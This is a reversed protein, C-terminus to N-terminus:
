EVPFRVWCGDPHRRGPLARRAATLTPTPASIHNAAAALLTYALRATAAAQDYDWREFASKAGRAALDAAAVLLRVRHADASALIDGAVANALNLYGATEWRHMNDKDFRGFGNSLAIYHMVTASEDGSWAFEFAGSPGFDLELESDYGDHPHSMGLHHGFEHIGTSTFGFGAAKVAPYDFM